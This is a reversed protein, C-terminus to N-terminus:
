TLLEECQEAIAKSISSNLAFLDSHCRNPTNFEVSRDKVFFTHTAGFEKGLQNDFSVHIIESGDKTLDAQYTSGKFDFHIHM